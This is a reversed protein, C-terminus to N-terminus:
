LQRRVGPEQETQRIQHHLDDELSARAMGRRGDPAQEASM